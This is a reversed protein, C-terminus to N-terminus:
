ISNWDRLPSNTTEWSKKLYERLYGGDIFIMCAKNPLPGQSITRMIKFAVNLRIANNIIYQIARGTAARDLMSM